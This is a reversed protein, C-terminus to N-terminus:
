ITEDQNFIDKGNEYYSLEAEIVKTREAFFNAWKLAREKTLAVCNHQEDKHKIFYVKIIKKM